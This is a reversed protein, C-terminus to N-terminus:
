FLKLIGLKKERTTRANTIHLEKDYNLHCRQCLAALNEDRNDKTDHNLHAITLVIVIWRPDEEISNWHDVLMRSAKYGHDGQGIADAYQNGVAREYVKAAEDWRAGAHNNIGCFKCCHHERKLIRERIQKWDSPYKSYDCPM